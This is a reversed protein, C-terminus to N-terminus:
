ASRRQEAVAGGAVGVEQLVADGLAVLEGAGHALDRGAPRHEVRLDDLRQHLRDGVVAPEGGGVLLQEVLDGLAPRDLRDGRARPM